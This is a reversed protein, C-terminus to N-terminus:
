ITLQTLKQCALIGVLKDFSYYFSFLVQLLFDPMTHWITVNNADIAHLSEVVIADDKDAIHAHCTACRFSGTALENALRAADDNLILM